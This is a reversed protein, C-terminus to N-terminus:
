GCVTSPVSLNDQAYPQVQLITTANLSQRRALGILNSLPIDFLRNYSVTVDYRNIDGPGALGDNGRDADWSQNGNVDLFCEGTDYHGNNNADTYDEPKGVSAFDEYALRSFTVEANPVLQKVAAEVHDDISAQNTSASEMTAQRAAQNVAGALITRVWVNYSLDLAGMILIFLVPALIAFEIATVGQTDSILARLSFDASLSRKSTM